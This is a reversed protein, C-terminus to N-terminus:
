CYLEIETGGADQPIHTHKGTMEEMDIRIVATRSLNEESLDYITGPAYHGVLITLARIKDEPDDVLFAKRYGIVCAYRNEWNCPIGTNMIGHDTTIEFCVNNNRTILDIKKGVKASHFYLANDKYGHNMPVVYPRDNHSLAIRCVKGSEIIAETEKTDTIELDKRRM